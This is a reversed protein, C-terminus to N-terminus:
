LSEVKRKLTVLGTGYLVVLWAAGYALPQWLQALTQDYVTAGVLAEIIPYTPLVQVWAATSGPLLISVAPILLPMTFLMAYFLQGIFDKGAAGVIMAVGTFMTAGILMTLVLVPWNSATFAGLLALVIIGQGFALGTGFITKAALLDSVRAPTVLVASVTRQLVEVSILSSMSFTEMLLIIFALLPVIKDRMSIQDGARDTGLVLSTEDLMTVPVKAGALQYAAERIFSKMASQIEEPVTADSYVTVRVDRAGAAVEGIFRAPFAIGIDIVLRTAGEPKKEGTAPDRLILEGDDTRWAELRGEIVAAMDAERDFEVLDLGPQKRTLDAQDLRALQEETAGLARLSSEGESVLTKVPPSVALTITEDVSDPLVWFLVFVLILTMATLVLYLTDRSYAILEKKLLAGIIARRSVPRSM